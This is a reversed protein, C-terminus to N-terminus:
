AVCMQPSDTESPSPYLPRLRQLPSATGMRPARGPRRWGTRVSVRWAPAEEWMLSHTPWWSRSGAQSFDTVWGGESALSLGLHSDVAVGVIRPSWLWSMRVPTLGHNWPQTSLTAMGWLMRQPAAGRTHVLSVRFQAKSALCLLQPRSDRSRVPRSPCNWCRAGLAVLDM